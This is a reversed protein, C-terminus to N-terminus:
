LNTKLELGLTLAARTLAIEDSKSLEGDSTLKNHHNKLIELKGSKFFPNADLQLDAASDLPTATLEQVSSPSVVNLSVLDPAVSCSTTCAPSDYLLVQTMCHASAPIWIIGLLRRSFIGVACNRHYPLKQSHPPNRKYRGCAVM